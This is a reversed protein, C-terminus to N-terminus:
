EKKRNLYEKELISKNEGKILGHKDIRKAWDLALDNKSIDIEIRILEYNNKDGGIRLYDFGGDIFVSGCSCERLDHRARSFITDKCNMCKIASIKM